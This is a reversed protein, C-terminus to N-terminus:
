PPCVGAKYSKVAGSALVWAWLDDVQIAHFTKNFTESDSGSKVTIRLTVAKSTTQPVGVVNVPDDYIEITKVSDLDGSPM